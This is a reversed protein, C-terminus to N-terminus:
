IVQLEQLASLIGDRSVPKPIFLSAGLSYALEPDNFVSCVIIPTAEFTNMSRLRQLLEWGDMEPMMVDLIMVDPHIKQAMALGDSGSSASVVQCYHGSLYRELLEVLGQNDDIILVTMLRNKAPTFSIQISYTMNDTNIEVAWGLLQTLEDIIDPLFPHHPTSSQYSIQWNALTPKLSLRSMLHDSPAHQVTHSLLNVVVQQALVPNSTIQVAHAAPFFALTKGHQQALREVAKHATQLLHLVDVERFDAQLRALESQMTSLEVASPTTANLELPYRDWLVLAVSEQGRRLDRYAQRPSIGLELAVEQITMAEVYHLHMLNYLRAHPSRFYVEGGPNLSEIAEMLDKRLRQGLNETPKLSAPPIARVLAHNQLFPFDYLHELAQKVEDLFAKSLPLPTDSM